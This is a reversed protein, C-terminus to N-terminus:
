GRRPRKQLKKEMLREHVAPARLERLADAAIWRASPTGQAAIRGAAAIAEPLLELSRKGIQRLAWNVAKKVGNRGDGAAREIVPLFTLFEVDPTKKRAIALKAMLSFAARRVFEEERDAWTLCLEWAYPLRHLLNFCLGDCIAWNDCDLVWADADARTFQGPDAIMAAVQRTEYIGERWLALALPHDRGIRRALDRMVPTRVGFARVSHIGYRAMGAVDAASGHAALYDVIERLDRM